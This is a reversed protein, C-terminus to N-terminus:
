KTFVYHKLGDLLLRRGGQPVQCLMEQVAQLDLFADVVRDLIRSDFKRKRKRKRKENWWKGKRETGKREEKGGGKEKAEM